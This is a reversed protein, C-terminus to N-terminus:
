GALHLVVEGVRSRVRTGSGDGRARAPIGKPLGERAESGCRAGERAARRPRCAGDHAEVTGKWVGHVSDYKFMYVMYDLSM